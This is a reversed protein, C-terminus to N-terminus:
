FHEGPQTADTAQHHRLAFFRVLLMEGLQPPGGPAPAGAAEQSMSTPMEVLVRRGWQRQLRPNVMLRKPLPEVQAGVELVHARAVQVPTTKRRVEVEMGVVPEIAAGPEIFSVVYLSRPDAVMLVPDGARVGEGEWHYIATVVGDIPSALSLASRRAQLEKIRELQSDAARRLPALATELTAVVAPPEPMRERSKAEAVEKDIAAIADQSAKIKKRSAELQYKVDDLVQDSVVGKDHLVRQRGLM